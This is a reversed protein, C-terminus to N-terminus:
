LAVAAGFVEPDYDLPTVSLVQEALACLSDISPDGAM